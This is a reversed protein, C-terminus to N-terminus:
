DPCKSSDWPHGSYLPEVTNTGNYQSIHQMSEKIREQQQENPHRNHMISIVLTMHMHASSQSM